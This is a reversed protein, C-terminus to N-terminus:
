VRRRELVDLVLHLLPGPLDAIGFAGRPVPRSDDVRGVYFDVPPLRDLMRLGADPVGRREIDSIILDWSSHIEALAEETTRVQHVSAGLGTLMQCEYRNNTPVDDIWLIRAKEIVKAVMRGRRLASSQAFVESAVQLIEGKPEAPLTVGSSAEKRDVGFNGLIYEKLRQYATAIFEDAPKRAFGAAVYSVAVLALTAPEM